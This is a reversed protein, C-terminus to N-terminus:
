LVVVGGAKDVPIKYFHENSNPSPRADQMNRSSDETYGSHEQSNGKSNGKNKGQQQRVYDGQILFVM